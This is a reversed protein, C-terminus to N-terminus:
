RAPLAFAQALLEYSRLRAQHDHVITVVMLEDVRLEDAMLTLQDRVREPAGVVYRPYEGTQEHAIPAADPGLERLAEAVTPIPRVDGQRIRRRFLRASALLRQAEADTEACVVGLALIAHPARLGSKAAAFNARYHSIAAQVPGPEIFHAFAYPLGLQAAASASWMSSGLLWVEPGGPMEPSVKIQSFPHKPPFDHNLFAILEVMQQGFDDPPPYHARDRWLAFSDLPTGGPARGIGLDIRNPYLAHLLRFNEVVKFPSYHPLMVGGSGVRITSTEAAVRAILIEPAPSALAPIAHHEAIWYRAYGLRDALRALEITNHLADAPTCGEPVPSQDIVSLKM